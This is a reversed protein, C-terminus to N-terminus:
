DAGAATVFVGPQHSLGCLNIGWGGPAQFDPISTHALAQKSEEEKKPTCVDMKGRDPAQWRGFKREKEPHWDHQILFQVGWGM